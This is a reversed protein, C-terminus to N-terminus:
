NRRVLDVPRDDVTSCRTAQRRRRRMVVILGIAAILLGVVGFVAIGLVTGLGIAAFFGIIPAACCVTCAAAGAGVLVLDQKKFSM